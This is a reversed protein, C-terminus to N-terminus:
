IIKYIKKEQTILLEIAPISYEPDNPGYDNEEYSMTVRDEPNLKSLLDMLDHVSMSNVIMNNYKVEADLKAGLTKIDELMEPSELKGSLAKMEQYTMNYCETCNTRTMRGKYNYSVQMDRLKKGDVFHSIPKYAGCVSCECEKTLDVSKIQVTENRRDIELVRM